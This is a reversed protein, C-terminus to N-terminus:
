LETNSWAPADGHALFNLAASAVVAITLEPACLPSSRTSIDLKKFDSLCRHREYCGLQPKSDKGSKFRRKYDRNCMGHWTPADPPWAPRTGPEGFLDVRQGTLSAVGSAKGNPHFHGPLPNGPFQFSSPVVPAGGQIELHRL